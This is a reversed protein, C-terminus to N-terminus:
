THNDNTEFEKYNLNDSSFCSIVYLAHDYTVNEM